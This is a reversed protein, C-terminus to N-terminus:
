IKPTRIIKKRTLKSHQLKNEAKVKEYFANWHEFLDELNAFLREEQHEEQLAVIFPRVWQMFRILNFGTDDYCINNDLVQTYIGIAMREYFNLIEILKAKFAILAKDQLLTGDLYAKIIRGTYLDHISDVGTLSALEKFLPVLEKAINHMSFDFAAKRKSFSLGTRIQFYLLVAGAALFLFSVITLINGIDLTNKASLIIVAIISVIVALLIYVVAKDKWTLRM